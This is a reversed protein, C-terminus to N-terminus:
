RSRAKTQPRDRDAPLTRRAADVIRLALEDDVGRVARALVLTGVLGTVTAIIEDTIAGGGEADALAELYRQLGQAFAQRVDPGARSVDVGMAPLPCGAGCDGIHHERLYVDVLKQLRDPSGRREVREVSAELAAAVAEAFMADKSAFHGYFAGHTLGAAATVEAVGVKEPGSVRILRSAADLLGARHADKRRKTVRM